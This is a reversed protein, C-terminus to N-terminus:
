LRRRLSGARSCCDACCALTCVQSVCWATGVRENTAGLSLVVLAQDELGSGAPGCFARFGGFELDPEADAGESPALVQRLTPQNTAAANHSPSPIGRCSPAVLCAPLGRQTLAGRVEQLLEYIRLPQQGKAAAAEDVEPVGRVVKPRVQNQSVRV